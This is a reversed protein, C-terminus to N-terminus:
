LQTKNRQKIDHSIEVISWFKTKAECSVECLSTLQPKRFYNPYVKLITCFGYVCGKPLILFLLLGSLKPVVLSGAPRGLFWPEIRLLLLFNLYKGCGGSRSRPGGLMRNVAHRLSKMRRYFPRRTFSLLWQWGAGFNHIFAAMVTAEVARM